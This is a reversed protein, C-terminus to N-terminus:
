IHFIKLNKAEVVVAAGVVVVLWWWVVVVVVTCPLQIEKFYIALEFLPM